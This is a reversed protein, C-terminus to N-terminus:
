KDMNLLGYYSSIIGNLFNKAEEPMEKQYEIDKTLTLNRKRGMLITRMVLATLAEESIGEVTTIPYEINEEVSNVYFRLARISSLFVETIDSYM